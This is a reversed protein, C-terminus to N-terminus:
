IVGKCKVCIRIRGGSRGNPRAPKAGEMKVRTRVGKTCTGCFLAVNSVHIPTAMVLMQGKENSKKPKRRKKVEGVGEVIIRGTDTIVRLVKSKKGKDKGSNVIVTDGKKIKIKTKAM